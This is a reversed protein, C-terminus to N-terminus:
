GQVSTGILDFRECAFAHAFVRRAPVCVCTCTNFYIMAHMINALVHVYLVVLTYTCTYRDSKTTDYKHKYMGPPCEVMPVLTGGHPSM